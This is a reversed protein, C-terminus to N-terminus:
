GHWTVGFDDGRYLTEDWKEAYYESMWEAGTYLLDIHDTFSKKFQQYGRDELDKLVVDMAALVFHSWHHAHVSRRRVIDFPAPLIYKRFYTQANQSLGYREAIYQHPISTRISRPSIPRFM